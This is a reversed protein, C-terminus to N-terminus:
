CLCPAIHKGLLVLPLILPVPFPLPFSGPGRREQGWCAELIYTPGPAGAFYGNLVDPKRPRLLRGERVLVSTAVTSAGVGGLPSSPGCPGPQWGLRAAQRLALDQRRLEVDTQTCTGLGMLRPTEPWGLNAGGLLCPRCRQGWVGRAGSANLVLPNQAGGAARLGVSTPDSPAQHSESPLRLGRM